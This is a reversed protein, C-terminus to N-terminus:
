SCDVIVLADTGSLLAFPLPSVRLQQQTRTLETQLRRNEHNQREAQATLRENEAIATKQGISLSVGSANAFTEPVYLLALSVLYNHIEQYGQIYKQREESMTKMQQPGYQQLWDGVRTTADNLPVGGRAALGALGDAGLHLGPSGFGGAFAGPSSQMADLKMLGLEAQLMTLSDLKEQFVVLKEVTISLLDFIYIITLMIRRAYPLLQSTVLSDGKHACKRPATLLQKVVLCEGKKVRADHEAAKAKEDDTLLKTPQGLQHVDFLDHLDAVHDV